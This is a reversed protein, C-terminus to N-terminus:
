QPPSVMLYFQVSEPENSLSYLPFQITAKEELLGRKNSVEGIWLFHASGFLHLIGGQHCTDVYVEERSSENETGNQQHELHSHTHSHFQFVAQVAYLTDM